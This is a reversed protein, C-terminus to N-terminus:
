TKLNTLCNTSLFFSNVNVNIRAGSTSLIPKRLKPQDRLKEPSFNIYMCVCVCVCFVGCVCVCGCVWGCVLWVFGCVCEFVCVGCVCVSVCVGCACACRCVVCM